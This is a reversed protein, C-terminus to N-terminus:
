AKRPKPLTRPSRPTPGKAVRVDGVRLGELFKNEKKGM